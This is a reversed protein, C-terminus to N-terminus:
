ARPPEQEAPGPGDTRPDLVDLRTEMRDLRTNILNLSTLVVSAFGNGTPKSLKAARRSWLYGGTGVVTGLMGVIESITTLDM